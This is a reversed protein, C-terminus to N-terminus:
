NLMGGKKAKVYAGMNLVAEMIKKDVSTSFLDQFENEAEMFAVNDYELCRNGFETNLIKSVKELSETLSDKIIELAITESLSAGESHAIIADLMDIQDSLSDQKMLCYFEKTERETLM